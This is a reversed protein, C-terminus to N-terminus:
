GRMLTQRLIKLLVAEEEITSPRVVAITRLQLHDRLAEDRVEVPTVVVEEGAEMELVRHQLRIELPQETLNKILMGRRQRPM